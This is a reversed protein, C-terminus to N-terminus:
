TKQFSKYEKARRQKMKELESAEFATYLMHASVRLFLLQAFPLNIGGTEAECVCGNRPLLSVVNDRVRFPINDLRHDPEPLREELQRAPGPHQWVDVTTYVRTPWSHLLALVLVVSVLTALLLTKRLSRM